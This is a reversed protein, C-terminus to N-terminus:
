SHFKAFLRFRATMQAQFLQAVIKAQALIAVSIFGQLLKFLVLFYEIGSLKGQEIPDMPEM